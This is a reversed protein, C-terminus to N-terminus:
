PLIAQLLSKHIILAFNIDTAYHKNTAPHLQRPRSSSSYAAPLSYTGQAVTLAYHGKLIDKGMPGKTQM